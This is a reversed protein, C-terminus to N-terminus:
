DLVLVTTPTWIRKRREIREAADENEYSVPNAELPLASLRLNVTSWTGDRDSLVAGLYAGCIRCIYFDATQLGFRYKQLNHEDAIRIVVSGDPDSWNRAAHSRCFSCDCARMRIEEVDKRTAFEFSLNGCHCAGSVTHM